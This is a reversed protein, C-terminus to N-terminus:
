INSIFKEVDKESLREINYWPIEKKKKEGLYHNAIVQLAEDRSDCANGIHRVGFMKEIAPQFTMKGRNSLIKSIIVYEM